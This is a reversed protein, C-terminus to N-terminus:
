LEQMLESLDLTVPLVIMKGLNHGHRELWKSVVPVRRQSAIKCNIDVFPEGDDYYVIGRVDLIDIVQLRQEFTESKALLDAVRRSLVGLAAIDDDTITSAKLKTQLDDRENNLQAIRQELQDQQDRLLKKSASGDPTQWLETLLRALNHNAKNLDSNKSDLDNQLMEVRARQQRQRQQWSRPIFDPDAM